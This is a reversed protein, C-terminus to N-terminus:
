VSLVLEEWSPGLAFSSWVGIGRCLQVGLGM